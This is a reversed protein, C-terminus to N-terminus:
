GLCRGREALREAATRILLVRSQRAPILRQEYLRRSRAADAPSKESDYAEAACLWRHASLLPLYERFPSTPREMQYQDAFQADREPCDHFGEWEYCPRLRTVYSQALEAARPDVSHATLRTEYSVQASYYMELWPTAPMRRSVYAGARQLFQELEDRLPGDYDAPDVPMHLGFVLVDLIADAPNKPRRPPSHVISLGVVVPNVRQMAPHGSSLSTLHAVQRLSAADHASGERPQFMIRINCNPINALRGTNWDLLIGGEPKSFLGTMRFPWGNRKEITQLDDGLRIAHPTVWRSIRGSVRVSSPARKEKADLWAIEVRMDDRGAFLITGEVPRGEPDTLMVSRVNERGYKAVLESEKLFAHFTACSFDLSETQAPSKALTLLLMVILNTKM